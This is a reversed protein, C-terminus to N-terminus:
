LFKEKLEPSPIMCADRKGFIRYRNRAILDYVLDRLGSPLWLFIGLAPWPGSLSRAIRLAADSKVYYAVQPQILIISDVASTDIGREEVLKQGTDSQLAAFRFTDKRDRKIVFQVSSNCLNCVGDFLIIQKTNAAM